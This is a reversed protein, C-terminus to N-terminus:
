EERGDGGGDEGLLFIVNGRSCNTQGLYSLRSATQNSRVDADVQVTHLSIGMGFSRAQHLRFWVGVSSQDNHCLFVGGLRIM